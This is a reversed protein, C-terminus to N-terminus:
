YLSQNILCDCDGKSVFLVQATADLNKNLKIAFEKLTLININNPQVLMYAQRKKIYDCYQAVTAKYFEMRFVLCYSIAKYSYFRLKYQRTELYDNIVFVNLNYIYYTKFKNSYFTVFKINYQALPIFGKSKAWNNNLFNCDSSTDRLGLLQKSAGTNPQTLYAKISM